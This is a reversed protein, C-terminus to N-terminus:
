DFMEIFKKKAVSMNGAELWCLDLEREPLPNDLKVEFIEDSLTTFEKIVCSIGLNIKAFDILLDHAGLSIEPKLIVGSQKFNEDIFRRTNSLRELMILPYNTIEQRTLIKDKLFDFKKGAIFMDHLALCKKTSFKKDTVPSNVFAVDIKGASLLSYAETSTRNIVELRINPYLESWKKLYPLLYYKSVTDAAGVRLFGEKLMRMRKIKEEAEGITEMAPTIMAYLQEAESTPVVNRKGRVFLKTDLLIELQKISQSIASQTVYLRRATESFSGIEYVNSFVRYLDLSFQEKM